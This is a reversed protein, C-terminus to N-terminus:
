LAKKSRRLLRWILTLGLLTTAIILISTFNTQEAGVYVTHANFWGSDNYEGVDSGTVNEFFEAKGYVDFQSAVNISINIIFSASSGTYEIEIDSVNASGTKLFAGGEFKTYLKINTFRVTNPGFENLQIVVSVFFNSYIETSTSDVLVTLEYESGESSNKITTNGVHHAELKTSLLMLLILFSIGLSVIKKAKM